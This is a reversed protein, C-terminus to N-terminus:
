DLADAKDSGEVSDDSRKGEVKAKSAARNPQDKAGIGCGGTGLDLETFRILERAADTWLTLPEDRADVGIGVAVDREKVGVEVGILFAIAGGDDRLGSERIERTFKCFSAISCHLIHWLRIPRHANADGDVSVGGSTM